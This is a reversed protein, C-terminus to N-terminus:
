AMAAALMSSARRLATHTPTSKPNIAPSSLKQQGSGTSDAFVGSPINASVFIGLLKCNTTSVNFSDDMMGIASTLDAAIDGINSAVTGREPELNAPDKYTKVYPVGLSSAGGQGTIFHQGYDQLLDFHALARLAKAEAIINNKHVICCGVAPNPYALPIANKAIQICRNIYKEHINM